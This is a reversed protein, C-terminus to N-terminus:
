TAAQFAGRFLRRYQPGLLSRVDAAQLPEGDGRRILEAALLEVGAWLAPRQLLKRTQRFIRELLEIRKANDAHAAQLNKIIAFSDSQAPGAAARNLALVDRVGKILKESKGSNGRYIDTAIDGAAAISLRSEVTQEAHKHPPLMLCISGGQVIQIPGVRYGFWLGALAHAAEHYAADIRREAFPAREVAM